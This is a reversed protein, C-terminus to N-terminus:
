FICSFQEDDEISSVKVSSVEAVTQHIGCKLTLKSGIASKQELVDRVKAWLTSNRALFDMNGVIYLGRRARSLAVCVRNAHGLFGISNRDNSRVLSLLVITNEEGQYNDVTVITVGNLLTIESALKSLLARQGNYTCLITIDKSSHGQLRLYNCLFILYKAEFINNRTTEDEAQNELCGHSVFFLNRDM